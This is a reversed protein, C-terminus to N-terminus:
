YHGLLGRNRAVNEFFKFALFGLGFYFASNAILFLLDGLPLSALSADGIMVKGILQTGLSLPLFKMLPFKDAPAAILFVFVFQLIQFAAQVQKFVLALGGMLFGIGYVGAVTLLILPTLSLFDLHLWRGSSAMMLFLILIVILANFIFTAVVRFIAVWGFGLPTMYLQELTGQQAEQIMAWSLDSYAFLAFTWVMFGVVIGSLTNGFSPSASGGLLAKAGYFIILFVIYITIIGSLTNFYYRKLYIYEKKLLAKFLIPHRM